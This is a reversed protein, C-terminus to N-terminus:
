VRSVRRRSLLSVFLAAVLVEVILAIWPHATGVVAATLMGGIFAGAIGVLITALIGIPNPGPVVLRGLFGIILGTIIFGIIVTLM